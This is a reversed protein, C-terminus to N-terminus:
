LPNKLAEFLAALSGYDNFDTKNDQLYREIFTKKDPFLKLLQKKSPAYFRGNRYLIPKETLKYRVEGRLDFDMGSETHINRLEQISTTASRQGFAGSKTDDFEIRKQVCLCVEDMQDVIGYFGNQRRLFLVGGITVRDVEDIGVLSLEQGDDLYRLSQDVTCINFTGLSFEGNSYVVRGKGFAPLVYKISDPLSAEFRAQSNVQASGAFPLLLALALLVNKM